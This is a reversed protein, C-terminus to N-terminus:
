ATFGFGGAAASLIAELANVKATLTAIANAATATDTVAPVTAGGSTGGSSDTLAGVRAKQASATAGFFGIQANRVTIVDTYTATGVATAQGGGQIRLNSGNGLIRFPWWSGSAGTNNWWEVGAKGVRTYSRMGTAVGVNNQVTLFTPDPDSRDFLQVQRRWAISGNAAMIAGAEGNGDGVYLLRQEAGPAPSNFSLLQLLPAADSAQMELRVLPALASRQTAHLWYASADTITARQDGVIGRGKLKNPIMLGIGDNDIGLGLMAANHGMSSGALLHYLYGADANHTFEWVAARTDGTPKMVPVAGPTTGAMRVYAADADAKTLREDIGDLLNDFFAKTARTVGSVITPRTYPM